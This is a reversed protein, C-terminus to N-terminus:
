YITNTSQTPFSHSRECMIKGSVCDQRCCNKNAKILLFESLPTSIAKRPVRVPRELVLRNTTGSCSVLWHTRICIFWSIVSESSMVSALLLGRLTFSSHHLLNDEVATHKASIEESSFVLLPTKLASWKGRHYLLAASCTGPVKTYEMGKLEPVVNLCMFVCEHWAAYKLM